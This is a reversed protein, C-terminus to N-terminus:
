NLFLLIEFQESYCHGFSELFTRNEKSAVFEVNGDRDHVYVDQGFDVIEHWNRNIRFRTGNPVDRSPCYTKKWGGETEYLIFRRSM